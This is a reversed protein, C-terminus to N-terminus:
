LAKTKWPQSVMRLIGTCSMWNLVVVVGCGFVGCTPTTALATMPIIAARTSSAATIRPNMHYRRLYLIRLDQANELSTMSGAEPISTVGKTGFRGSIVWPFGIVLVTHCCGCEPSDAVTAVSPSAWSGYEEGEPRCECSGVDTGTPKDSLSSARIRASFKGERGALISAM